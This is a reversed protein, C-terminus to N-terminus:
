VRPGTAQASHPPQDRLGTALRTVIGIENETWGLHHAADLVRCLIGTADADLRRRIEAPTPTPNPDSM